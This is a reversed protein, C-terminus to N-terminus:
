NQPFPVRVATVLSQETDGTPAEEGEEALSSIHFAILSKINMIAEEITDGEDALGLTPCMVSYCVEGSGTRHDPNIIINYNFNHFM